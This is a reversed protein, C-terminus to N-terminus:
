VPVIQHMIWITVVLNESNLYGIVLRCLFGIQCQRNELYCPDHPWLPTWRPGTPGLHALTPGMFKAILTTWCVIKGFYSLISKVLLLWNLWSMKRFNQFRTGITISYDDDDCHRWLLCWPTEFWQCTSHKNLRETLWVDYFIDFSRTVPMPNRECLALSASINGNSSTIM